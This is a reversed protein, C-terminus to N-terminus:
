SIIKQAAILLIEYADTESQREEIDDLTRLFLTDTDIM